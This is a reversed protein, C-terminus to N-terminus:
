QKKQSKKERREEEVRRRKEGKEKKREERERGSNGERRGDEGGKKKENPASNRLSKCNRMTSLTNPNHYLSLTYTSNMLLLSMRDRIEKEYNYHYALRM